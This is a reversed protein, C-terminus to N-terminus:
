PNHLLNQLRAVLQRVEVQGIFMFVFNAGILEQFFPGQDDAKIPPDPSRVAVGLQLSQLSYMLLNDGM